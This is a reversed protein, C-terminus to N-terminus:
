NNQDVHAREERQTASASQAFRQWAAALRRADWRDPHVILRYRLTMSQGAKLVLPEDSLLSANIYSMEPSRIAYWSTPHRPNTPHDLFALGAAHGDILGNYDMAAARSRHRDGDGFETAGSTSNAEREVLNKAFRVSLGAYGGWAQEQPPVRDLTVDDVADAFTSTWDFHYSGNRDPASIEVTRQEVLVPRDDETPQYGLAMSIRASRDDRTLVRVDSWRTRGDPRGSQGVHEWYNVGNIFKWCFWLGHHWAHDPPRDCTLEYGDATAVPHFYPVNLTPGYNFQWIVRGARTLAVSSYSTQWSYASSDGEARAALEAGVFCSVLVFCKLM